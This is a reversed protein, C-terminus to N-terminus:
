KTIQGNIQCVYQKKYTNRIEKMHLVHPDNSWTMGDHHLSASEIQGKVHLDHHKNWVMGYKGFDYIYVYNHIDKLLFQYFIWEKYLAGFNRNGTTASHKGKKFFGVIKRTLKM